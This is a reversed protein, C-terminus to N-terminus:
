DKRVRKYAGFVIKKVEEIWNPGLLSLQERTEPKALFSSAEAPTNFGGMLYGWGILPKTKIEVSGQAESEDWDAPHFIVSGNIREEKWKKPFSHIVGAIVKQAFSARSNPRLLQRARPSLSKQAEEWIELRLRYASLAKQFKEELRSARILVKPDLGFGSVHKGTGTKGEPAKGGNCFLRLAERVRQRAETPDGHAARVAPFIVLADLYKEISERSEAIRLAPLEPRITKRSRFDSTEWLLDLLSDKHHRIFELMEPGLRAFDRALDQLHLHYQEREEKVRGAISAKAEAIADWNPLDYEFADGSGVFGEPLGETPSLPSRDDGEHREPYDEEIYPLWSDTFQWILYAEVPDVELIAATAAPRVLAARCGHRRREALCNHVDRLYGDQFREVEDTSAEEEVHIGISELEESRMPIQIQSLEECIEELKFM